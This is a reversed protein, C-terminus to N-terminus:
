HRVAETADVQEKEVATARADDEARQRLLEAARGIIQDALAYVQVAALPLAEPGRHGFCWLATSLCRAMAESLTSLDLQMLTENDRYVAEPLGNHQVKLTEGLANTMENIIAMAQADSIVTSM